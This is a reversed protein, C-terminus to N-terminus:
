EAIEPHRSNLDHRNTGSDYVEGDEGDDSADVNIPAVEPTSGGLFSVLYSLFKSLCLYTGLLFYSLIKKSAVSFNVWLM